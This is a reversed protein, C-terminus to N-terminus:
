ERCAAVEALVAPLELRREREAADVRLLYPLTPREWVAATAGGHGLVNAAAAAAAAALQPTGEAVGGQDGLACLLALGSTYGGGGGGVAIGAAGAAAASVIQRAIATAYDAWAALAIYILPIEKQRDIM